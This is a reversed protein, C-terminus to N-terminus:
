RNWRLTEPTDLNTFGSTLANEVNIPMLETPLVKLDGHLPTTEPNSALSKWLAVKLAIMVASRVITKM